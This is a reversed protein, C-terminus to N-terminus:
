KLSGDAQHDRQHDRCDEQRDEQLRDEQRRDEQRRGVQLGVPRDEVQHHDEAQRHDEELRPDDLHDHRSNRLILLRTRRNRYALRLYWRLSVIQVLLFLVPTRYLLIDLPRNNRNLQM